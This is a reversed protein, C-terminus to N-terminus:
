PYVRFHRFLQGPLNFLLNLLCAQRRSSTHGEIRLHVFIVLSTQNDPLSPDAVTGLAALTTVYVCCSSDPNFVASVTRIRIVPIDMFIAALLAVRSNILLSGNQSSVSFM